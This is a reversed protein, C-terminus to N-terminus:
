LMLMVGGGARSARDRHYMQYGPIAYEGEFDRDSTRVWSETLAVLDPRELAMLAVFELFKNRISRANFLLANLSGSM